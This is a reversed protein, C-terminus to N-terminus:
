GNKQYIIKKSGGNCSGLVMNSDQADENPVVELTYSVVAAAQIKVDIEARLEECALCCAWPSHTCPM